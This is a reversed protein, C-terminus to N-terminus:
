PTDGRRCPADHAVSPTHGSPSDERVTPRTSGASPVGSSEITLPLSLQVATGGDPESEVLLTGGLARARAKASKLGYGDQTGPPIGIGNDVIDLLLHDDEISLTLVARRADAHRVVNAMSSQAIRLVTLVFHQPLTTLRATVGADIRVETDLHNVAQASAALSRLEGPLDCGRLPPAATADVFSRTQASTQRAAERASEVRELAQSTDGRLLDAHATDLLMHISIASQAVTDHLERAIRDREEAIGAARQQAALEHQTALLERALATRQAIERQLTQYSLVVAAAVLAGIVPGIVEGAHLEGFHIAYGGIGICSVLALAIVGGVLPLAYMVVFDLAFALWAANPTFCFTLTWLGITLAIYPAAKWRHQGSRSQRLYRRAGISYVAILCLMASVFWGGDGQIHGRVSSLVLVVVCLVYFLMHVM